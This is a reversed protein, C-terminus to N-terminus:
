SAEVILIKYNFYKEEGNCMFKIKYNIYNGVPISYNARFQVKATLTVTNGSLVTTSSLTASQPNIYSRTDYETTEVTGDTYDYNSNNKITLTFTATLYQTLWTKENNSIKTIITNGDQEDGESKFVQFSVLLGTEFSTNTSLRDEEATDPKVVDAGPLSDKVYKGSITGNIYLERTLYSYSISIFVIVILILVVLFRTKILKRKKRKYKKM